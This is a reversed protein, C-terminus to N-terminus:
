AGNRESMTIAIVDHDHCEEHRKEAGSGMRGASCQPGQKMVIRNRNQPVRPETGVGPGRVILYPPFVGHTSTRVAVPPKIM